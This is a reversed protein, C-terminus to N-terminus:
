SLQYCVESWLQKRILFYFSQFSQLLVLPLGRLRAAKKNPLLIIPFQFGRLSLPYQELPQKRILFYFSQFCTQSSRGPGHEPAAKKNPLLIIPFLATKAVGVTTAALQKRILFYFSQFCYNLALLGM